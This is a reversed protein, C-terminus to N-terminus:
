NTNPWAFIKNFLVFISFAHFNWVGNLPLVFLFLVFISKFLFVFHSLQNWVEGGKGDEKFKAIRGVAHDPVDPEEAKDNYM